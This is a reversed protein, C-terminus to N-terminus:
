KQLLGIDVVIGLCKIMPKREIVIKIFRKENFWKATSKTEKNMTFTIPFSNNSYFSYTDDSLIIPELFDSEKVLDDTYTLFPLIEM